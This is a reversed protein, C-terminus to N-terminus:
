RINLVLVSLYFPLLGAKAILLYVQFFYVPIFSLYPVQLEFLSARDGHSKASCRTSLINKTDRVPKNSSLKM